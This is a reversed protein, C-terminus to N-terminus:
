TEFKFTESLLASRQILEKKQKFIWGAAEPPGRGIEADRFVKEVCRERWFTGAEKESICRM